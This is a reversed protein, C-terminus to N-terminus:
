SDQHVPSHTFSSSTLSSVSSSPALHRAPAASVYQACRSRRSSEVASKPAPRLLLTSPQVARRGPFQTDPLPLELCSSELVVVHIAVTPPPIARTGVVLRRASFLRARHGPHGHSRRLLSGCRAIGRCCPRTSSCLSSPAPRRRYSARTVSHLALPAQPMSSSLAQPPM